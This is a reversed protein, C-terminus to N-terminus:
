KTKLVEIIKQSIKNLPLISDVCNRKIAEKPMGFVVCSSEDQAITYAGNEKMELMGRAGDDGMGTMIVGIVNKGGYRAASRFLVDVSPRHRSVLPGTRIEIQYEHGSTKLLMHEDGPAIYVEGVRAKMGNEAEMVKARSTTNLRDAFAKTFFKPMHQVILVPPLDAPIESLFDRLAETGGTSAGIVIVKDKVTSVLPANGAPLIVDATLKPTVTLPSDSRTNKKVKVNVAARVIDQIRTKSEELFEKTGLKPKEIIEVAGIDLANIANQSNQSTFSSCIIIPMPKSSMIKKLYTIGDMQPMQLDLILVDPNFSPLKKDAFVPNAATVVLFGENEPLITQMTQRVLASDDVVMVKILDRM